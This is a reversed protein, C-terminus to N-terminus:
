KQNDGYKLRTDTLQISRNSDEYELILLAEKAIKMSWYWYAEMPYFPKVSFDKQDIPNMDL